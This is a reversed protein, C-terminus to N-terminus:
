LEEAHNKRGIYDTILRATQEVGLLGSDISLQYNASKGWEEHTYYNYFTERHKDTQQILKRSERDSLQYERAIRDMRKRLGAHLFVSTLRREGRFIYNGCRGMLVCDQEAAIKRMLAFPLRGREEINEEAAIAYILSNVPEERLFSQVEDFDGLKQAADFLQESDFLPIRYHQALLRGVILGGSGFQREITIIM